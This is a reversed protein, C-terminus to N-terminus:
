IQTAEDIIYPESALDFKTLFNGITTFTTTVASSPHDSLAVESTFISGLALLLPNVNVPQADFYAKQNAKIQKIDSTQYLAAFIVDLTHETCNQLEITFPNAIVSYNPNHLQQYTDSTIVKLIKLQVEPKPIVIGTELVQIGSFFDVPYDQMLFSQDPKDSTQYLNYIAYGPITRGDKLTIKSYVAIGVHTFSVGKPLDKRPRGTRAIIAVRAGNKALYKEVKKSFDVIRQADFYTEDGAQSSGAFAPLACSLTIAIILIYYYINKM